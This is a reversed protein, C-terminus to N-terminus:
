SVRLTCDDTYFSTVHGGTSAERGTFRVTIEQGAFRSLDFAHRQYDRGTAQDTYTALTALVSGGPSVVQARFTDVAESRPVNSAVLLWFVLTASNCSAPITVDQGITDTHPTTYGGLWALWRGSHAPMNGSVNAVVGQSGQWPAIRGTEFGPNGLLQNAACGAAAPNITWRFSATGTAGRDDMAIVTVSSTGPDSPTGSIVGTTRSIALGGPLGIAHFSLNRGDSDTAHIRLTVRHGTRGTQPGPSTVTVTSATVTASAPRAPAAWASLGTLAMCLGASTALMAWGRTERIRVARGKAPRLLM